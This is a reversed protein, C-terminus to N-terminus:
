LLSILVFNQGGLLDAWLKTAKFSREGCIKIYSCFLLLFPNICVSSVFFVEALYIIYSISQFSIKMSNRSLLHSYNHVPLFLCLSLLSYLILCLWSVLIKILYKRLTLSQCGKEFKLQFYKCLNFVVSKCATWFVKRFEVSCPSFLM